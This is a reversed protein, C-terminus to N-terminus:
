GGWLAALGKRSHRVVQGWGGRDVSADFPNLRHLDGRDWLGSKGSSAKLLLGVLVGAVATRAFLSAVAGVVGVFGIKGVNRVCALVDIGFRM